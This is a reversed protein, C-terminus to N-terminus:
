AVVQRRSVSAMVASLGNWETRRAEAAGWCRRSGAPAAPRAALTQQAEQEQQQTRGDQKRQRDHEQREGM